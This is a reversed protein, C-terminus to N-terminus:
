PSPSLWGTTRHLRSRAMELRHAVAEYEQQKRIRSLVNWVALSIAAAVQWTRRSVDLGAAAQYWSQGAADLHWELGPALPAAASGEAGQRLYRGALLAWAATACASVLAAHWLAEQAPLAVLPARAFSTRASLWATLTTLLLPLSGRSAARAIWGTLPQQADLAAALPQQFFYEPSYARLLQSHALELLGEFGATLGPALWHWPAAAEEELQEHQAALLGHYDKHAGAQALVACSLLLALLGGMLQCVLGKRCSRPRSFIRCETM